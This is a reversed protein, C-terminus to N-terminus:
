LNENHIIAGVVRRPLDDLPMTGLIRANTQDPLRVGADRGCAVPPNGLGCAVGIVMPAGLLDFLLKRREVATSLRHSEDVRPRRYNIGVATDDSSNGARCASAIDDVVQEMPVNDSIAARGQHAFSM